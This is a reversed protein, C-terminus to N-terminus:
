GASTEPGFHYKGTLYGQWATWGLLNICWWVLGLKENWWIPIMVLPAYWYMQMDDSLYWTVGMCQIKEQILLCMIIM